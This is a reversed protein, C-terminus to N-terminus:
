TFLSKNKGFIFLSPTGRSAKSVSFEQISVNSLVFVCCKLGNILFSDAAAALKSGALAFPSSKSKYVLTIIPTYM